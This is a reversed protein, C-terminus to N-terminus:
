ILTRVAILMLLAANAALLPRALRPLAARWRRGLLLGGYAVVFLGPFTGAVFAAM